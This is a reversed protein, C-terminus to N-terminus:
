KDNNKHTEILEESLSFRSSKQLWIYLLVLSCILTMIIKIYISVVSYYNVYSVSLGILTTALIKSKTRIVRYSEWDKIPPGLYPLEMLWKHFKPSSKSFGIAALIMFPTTPLIPLILGLVGLLFSVWAFIFFFWKM